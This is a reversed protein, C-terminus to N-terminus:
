DKVNEDDNQAQSVQNNLKKHSISGLTKELDKMANQVKVVTGCLNVQLHQQQQLELHKGPVIQHFFPPFPFYHDM